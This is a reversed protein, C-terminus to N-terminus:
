WRNVIQKIEAAPQAAALAALTQHLTPHRLDPALDCLPVLVFAREALRPHPIVLAEDAYVLADYLLIDIDVARPGWRVSPVRGLDRELAQAAALLARPALATRARCVANLFPPQEVGGWPPTEYLASCADIAAVAALGARAAELTARRDGLNAGLGLYVTHLTEPM